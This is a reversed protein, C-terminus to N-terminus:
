SAVRAFWEGASRRDHSAAGASDPPRNGKREGARSGIHENVRPFVRGSAGRHTWSASFKPTGRLGPGLQSTRVLHAPDAAPPRAPNAAGGSMQILLAPASTSVPAAASQDNSRLSSCRQATSTIAVTRSARATPSSMCRCPFPTMTLIPQSWAFSPMSPSAPCNNPVVLLATAANVRLRALERAGSTRTLRDPGRSSEFPFPASRCTLVPLVAGLLFRQQAAPPFRSVNRFHCQEEYGIGGCKHVPLDYADVASASSQGVSGCVWLGVTGCDWLGVSGCDWLGVTGCVWLGMTGYDWLGWLGM